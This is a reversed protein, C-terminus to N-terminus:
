SHFLVFPNLTFRYLASSSTGPWDAGGPPTIHFWCFLLMSCFLFSRIQMNNHYYSAQAFPYYFLYLTSVRLRFVNVCQAIGAVRQSISIEPKTIAENNEQSMNRSTASWFCRTNFAHVRKSFVFSRHSLNPKILFGNNTVSFCEADFQLWFVMKWIGWQMMMWKNMHINTQWVCRYHYYLVIYYYCYYM